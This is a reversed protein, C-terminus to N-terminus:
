HFYKLRLPIFYPLHSVFEDSRVEHIKTVEL